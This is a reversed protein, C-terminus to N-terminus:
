RRWKPRYATVVGGGPGSWGSAKMKQHHPLLDLPSETTAIKEIRFRDMLARPRFAATELQRAVQGYIRDASEEDLRERIGFVECFAHDLWIRTPTGHFLYAYKAFLRWIRRPDNEIPGGDRRPVGLDELAVGQSYLMRFICHDPVIFLRAPDPFPADDAYWRPDTHGHLSVMPLDKVEGYLRRAIARQAADSSFLRDHHLHLPTAMSM